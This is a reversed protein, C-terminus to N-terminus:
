RSASSAPKPVSHPDPHAAREIAPGLAGLRPARATSQRGAGDDHRPRHRHQVAGRRHRAEILV